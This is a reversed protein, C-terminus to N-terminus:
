PTTAFVTGEGNAGGASTTGYFVNGVSILGAAPSKGDKCSQASCFAYVVKEAGTKPDISFMTGGSGHGTSTLTTGYLKGHVNILGAAPNAGDECNLGNCFTHVVTEEGTKPDISFVTGDNTSGGFETTGFLIGGVEVLGAVPEVGDATNAQFAHLVTETGTRPNLSFVTGCGMNGEYCVGSTGGQQTTGYLIGDVDILGAYPAAGYDGFAQFSLVVREAGTRSNVSFVTGGGGGGNETTGYLHGHIELLGAFPADGGELGEFTHVVTEAGTRRNISFVTGAGGSGGGNEATGFLRGQVHILGAVPRWGDPCSQQSCFSHLVTEAGTGPNVQFVTGVGNAGGGATTGYLAGHVNILGALPLEGDACNQQSCFSYIVRETGAEATPVHLFAALIIASAVLSSGVCNHIQSVSAEWGSSDPDHCGADIKSPM